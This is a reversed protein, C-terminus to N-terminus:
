ILHVIIIRIESLSKNNSKNPLEIFLNPTVWLRIAENGKLPIHSVIHRQILNDTVTISNTDRISVKVSLM